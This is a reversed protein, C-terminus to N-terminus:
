IYFIYDIFGENLVDKNSSNFSINAKSINIKFQNLSKTNMYYNNNLNQNDDKNTFANKTDFSSLNLNTINSINYFIYNM